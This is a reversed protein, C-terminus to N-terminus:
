WSTIASVVRGVIQLQDASASDAASNDATVNIRGDIKHYLRRVRLQEGVKLVYLRGDVITRDALNVLLVDGPSISPRMAEDPMKVVRCTVPDIHNQQFLEIRFAYTEPQETRLSEITVNEQVSSRGAPPEGRYLPIFFYKENAAVNASSGALLWEASVDLAAAVAGLRKRTPATGGELEWNRVSQWSVGVADGLQQWTLQRKLRATKIRQNITDM